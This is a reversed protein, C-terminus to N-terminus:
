DIIHCSAGVPISEVNNMFLELAKDMNFVMLSEIKDSISSFLNHKHIFEFVGDHKLRLFSFTM